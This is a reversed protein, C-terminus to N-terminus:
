CAYLEKCVLENGNFEEGEWVWPRTVPTDSTMWLPAASKKKQVWPRTVPTDSTMWLPAAPKKKKFWRHVWLRAVPRDSTM